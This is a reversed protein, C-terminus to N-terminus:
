LCAGACGMTVVRELGNNTCLNSATSILEVREEGDCSEDIYAISEGQSGQFQIEEAIGRAIGWPKM